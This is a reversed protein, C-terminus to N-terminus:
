NAKLSFLKSLWGSLKTWFGPETCQSDLCSNSSCEFDNDCYENGNRQEEWVNNVNCYKGKERYGLQPCQKEINCDEPCTVGDEGFQTECIGNVVCDSIGTDGCPNRFYKIENCKNDVCSYKKYETGDRCIGIGCDSDQKCEKTEESCDEPCNCKNEGLGCVGNGCNVCIASESGFTCEGTKKYITIDRVTNLGVCCRLPEVGPVIADSLREGEGKCATPPCDYIMCGNEDYKGTPKGNMCAICAIPVKEFKIGFKAVHQVPITKITSIDILKLKGDNFIEIEDGIFLRDRILEVGAVVLYDIPISSIEVDAFYGRNDSRHKPFPLNDVNKLNIEIGEKKFTRHEGEKLSFEEWEGYDGGVNVSITSQTNAGKDDTVTFIVKYKGPNSYKHTFTAEQSIERNSASSGPLISPMDGWDVSYKLYKGDPDYAEIGWKGMENVDLNTPGSVGTIVPPKNNSGGIFDIKFEAKDKEVNNLGLAIGLINVKQGEFITYEDNETAMPSTPLNMNADTTSEVLVKVSDAVLCQAGEPCISTSVLNIRMNNYNTVEATEEKELSFETPITILQVNQGEKIINFYDDSKDEALVIPQLDERPCLGLCPKGDYLVLKVKYKGSELRMGMDGQVITDQIKWKYEGTNYKGKNFFEPALVTILGPTPGDELFIGLRFDSDTTVDYPINNWKILYTEGITLTEGGKPSFIKIGFAPPSAFVFPVVLLSLLMLIIIKKMKKDGFYSVVNRMMM